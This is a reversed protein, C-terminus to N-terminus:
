KTRRQVSWDKSRHLWVSVDLGCGPLRSVFGGWDITAGKAKCGEKKKVSLKTQTLNGSSRYHFREAPPEENLGGGIERAEDMVDRQAESIGRLRGRKRSVKNTNWESIIACFIVFMQKIDQTITFRMYLTLVMKLSLGEVIRTFTNNEPEKRCGDNLM